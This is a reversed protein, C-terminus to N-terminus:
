QKVNKFLNVVRENEKMVFMEFEAGSRYEHPQGATIMDKAYEPDNGIKDFVSRLYDLKSKEIKAPAIFGRRIYSEVDYGSERLTPVDALFDSRKDAAIALVNLQDLSRMVDNLNGFMVDIEGGMLAMNQEIGKYFVPTVPFDYKSQVDLFMLHQGSNPGILGVKLKGPNEKAFDFIEKVNKFSSKKNVAVVQPDNVVQCIYAFDNVTYQAKQALPQIMIHPTNVGGITYGDPRAKAIEGFGVAGGAGTKYIFNWKAKSHKDWYKQMLRAQVDSSGGASFAIIMNIPKDPYEAGAPVVLGLVLALLLLLKKM